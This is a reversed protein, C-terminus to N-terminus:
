IASTLRAPGQEITSDHYSFRKTAPDLHYTLSMRSDVPAGLLTGKLVTEHRLVTVEGGDQRLPSTALRAYGCLVGNIEIGYYYEEARGQSYFAALASLVLLMRRFPATTNRAM